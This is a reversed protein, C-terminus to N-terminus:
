VDKSRLLIRSKPVQYSWSAFHCRRVAGKELEYGEAIRQEREEDHLRFRGEFGILLATLSVKQSTGSDLAHLLCDTCHSKSSAVAVRVIKGSNTCCDLRDLRHTNSEKVM